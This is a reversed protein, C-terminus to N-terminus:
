THEKQDHISMQSELFQRRRANQMSWFAGVAAILEAEDPTVSDNPRVSETGEAIYDLLCVCKILGADPWRYVRFWIAVGLKKELDEARSMGRSYEFEQKEYAEFTRM